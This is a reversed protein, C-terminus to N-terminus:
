LVRTDAAPLKAWWHGHRKYVLPDRDALLSKLSLAEAELGDWDQASLDNFATVEIGDEVPRWVGAVYGDVMIMPLVDGNIRIAHERYEPPIVRSRDVYALLVNDWMGLLRPPAPTEEDPLPAGPVDYLVAGNPGEVQEVESDMSKLAEKVRARQMMAVLATDAISAPGFAALYRVIFVRLAAEVVDPEPPVPLPDAAIYSPRDGFSWPGGTVAAWFPAYQRLGCWAGAPDADLREALWAKCETPTRPRDAFALLEPIVAEADAPKLGTAAFRGGLRAARLSPELSERLMRYDEVHAAHLTMRVVNSKVITRSAFADDLEAPDFDVLRNWLAMYPSAASQAQLAVLRRVAEPVGIRSRELLLQRGLSARNLGRASIRM